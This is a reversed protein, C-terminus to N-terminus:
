RPNKISHPLCFCGFITRNEFCFPALKLVSRDPPCPLLCGHFCNPGFLVSCLQGTESILISKVDKWFYCLLPYPPPLTITFLLDPSSSPSGLIIGVSFFSPLCPFYPLMLNDTCDGFVSFFKRSMVYCLMVYLKNRIWISLYMRAAHSFLIYWQCYKVCIQGQV